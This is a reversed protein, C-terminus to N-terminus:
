AALRMADVALITLENVRGNRAECEVTAGARVGILATGIPTTVAIRKLAIDAEAPWVLEVQREEGTEMRYRVRSGMRVVDDPLLADEVISAREIENLLDEGAAGLTLLKRYDSQGLVIANTTNM